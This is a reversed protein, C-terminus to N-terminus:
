AEPPGLEQVLARLSVAVQRVTEPGLRDVLVGLMATRRARAAEWVAVGEATLTLRHYRADAPDVAKAVVGASILSAILRSMTPHAVRESRALAKLTIGPSLRITTMTSLQLQGFGAERDAARSARFLGVTLDFLEIAAVTRDVPPLDGILRAGDGTLEVGARSFAELLRQVTGAQPSAGGEIRNVTTFAVGSERALDRVSWRALARGARCSAPTLREM